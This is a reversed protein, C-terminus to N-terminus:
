AKGRSVAEDVLRTILETFPVGGDAILKPYMSIPTFGPLTNIENFVFGGDWVFFDVRAFGRCDLIRFVREATRRVQDAIGDPIRAPIFYKATDNVYKTDYDYFESGPDIEGCVSVTIEGDSGGLVATEIEKGIMCRECLIKSDHAFAESFALRLGDRDEARTIGVSSGARAPKVFIPYGGAAKEARGFCGDEDAGYEEKTIIAAPAQPIGEAMLIRKTFAKDMCVASSASGCGVVPIEALELMGQVTGDEGFSGHLVPFVADIELPATTGDEELSFLDGPRSISIVVRSLAHSQWTGSRVEEPEGEFLYWEGSKTIGVPVVDFRERDVSTLVSYASMLSVEHESSVGGFLVALRTKKM